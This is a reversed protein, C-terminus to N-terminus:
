AVGCAPCHPSGVRRPSECSACSAVVERGCGECHPGSEADVPFGCFPCEGKRVRSGPIRRALYKQLGIFAAVTAGAGLLSLIIPGLDLIDVYDSIYDVAFVLSMIVGSAVVAFGLPLYRSERERVRRILGLGGLTLVGILLLRLGASLWDRWSGDNGTRSEYGKEATHAAREANEAEVKASELAVKAEDYSTQAERYEKELDATPKGRDVALSLDDRALELDTKASNSADDAVFLAESAREQEDFAKQEVSTYDDFHGVGALSDTKVYAWGAGILIFATLVVALFKESKTSSIDETDVRTTSM